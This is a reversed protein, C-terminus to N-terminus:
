PNASAEGSEKAPWESELLEPNKEACYPCYIPKPDLWKASGLVWGMSQIWGILAELDGFEIVLKVGCGDCVAKYLTRQEIM